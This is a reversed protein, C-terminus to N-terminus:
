PCPCAHHCLIKQGRCIALCSNQQTGSVTCVAGTPLDLCEGCEARAAPGRVPAPRCDALFFLFLLLVLTRLLNTKISSIALM